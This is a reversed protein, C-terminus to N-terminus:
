LPRRDFQSFVLMFLMGGCLVAVISGGVVGGYIFVLQVVIQLARWPAVGVLCLGLVTLCCMGLLVVAGISLIRAVAWCTEQVPTM